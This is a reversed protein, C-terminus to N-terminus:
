IGFKVGMLVYRIVTTHFEDYRVFIRRAEKETEDVFWGAFNSLVNCQDKIYYIDHSLLSSTARPRTFCNFVLYRMQTGLTSFVVSKQQHQVQSFSPTLLGVSKVLVIGTGIFTRFRYVRWSSLLVRTVSLLEACWLVIIEGIMLASYSCSFGWFVIAYPHSSLAVVFLIQM